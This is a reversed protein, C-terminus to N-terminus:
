LPEVGFWDYLGRQFSRSGHWPRGRQIVASEQIAKWCDYDTEYTVWHEDSFEPGGGGGYDFGKGESQQYGKDEIGNWYPRDNNEAEGRRWNCAHCVPDVDFPRSYDRHDYETAQESCDVCQYESPPAIEGRRIAASVIKHCGKQGGKYDSRPPEPRYEWPRVKYIRERRRAREEPSM